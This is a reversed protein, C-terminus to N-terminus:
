GECEKEVFEEWLREFEAREAREDELDQLGEEIEARETRRFRKEHARSVADCSGPTSHSCHRWILWKEGNNWRRRDRAM